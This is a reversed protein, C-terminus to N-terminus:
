NRRRHQSYLTRRYFGHYNNEVIKKAVIAMASPYELCFISLSVFGAKFVHSWFDAGYETKVLLDSAENSMSGHFSPPLNHRSRTMRGVVIPVTFFFTGGPKLVRRCESLGKVPDSVHELTDSHIVLDFVKSTFMLNRMDHEPYKIFTHGSLKSLYPTFGGAENIELIRLDKNKEINIFEKLTGNFSFHDAISRALAMSRLNNGCSKCIFGQQRNIYEAEHDKLEWEKILENWLISSFFFKEGNCVPYKKHSYM